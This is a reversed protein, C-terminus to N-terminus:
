PIIQTAFVIVKNIVRLKQLSIAPLCLGQEWNRVTRLPVSFAESFSEQTHGLSLRYSKFEEATFLRSDKETKRGKTM